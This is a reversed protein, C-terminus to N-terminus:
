ASNATILETCDTAEKSEHFTKIWDKIQLEEFKGYLTQTKWNSQAKEKTKYAFEKIMQRESVAYDETISIDKYKTNGKLNQLNKLIKEEDQKDNLVVNKPKKKNLESRGIRSISKLTVNECIRQIM